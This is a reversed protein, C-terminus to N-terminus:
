ITNVEATNLYTGIKDRLKQYNSYDRSWATTSRVLDNFESTWWNPKTKLKEMWNIYEADYSSERWLKLRLSAIPIHDQLGHEGPRGPYFLTGDGNGSFDWLSNWPDRKPFYQYGNNVSYYLFGDIKYKMSLWGIVRVYASSRDLVMDPVGTDALAECGHSMCSVYWWVEHGKKQFEQYITPSPFGPVDFHNIVPVFIDISNALEPQYTITVLQKLSPAFKKVLQSLKSLQSMADPKPEDWLYVLAKGPRPRDRICM